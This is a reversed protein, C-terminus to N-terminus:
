PHLGERSMMPPQVAPQPGGGDSPSSAAHGLSTGSPAPHTALVGQLQCPGGHKPVMSCPPSLDSWLCGCGWTSHAPVASPAASSSLGGPSLGLPEGLCESWFAQSTSRSTTRGSSSRASTAPLSVPKTLPSLTPVNLIDDRAQMPLSSVAAPQAAVCGQWREGGCWDPSTKWVSFFYGHFLPPDLPLSDGVPVM